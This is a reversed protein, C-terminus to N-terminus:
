GCSGTYGCTDCKECGDRKVLTMSHCEPCKKGNVLAKPVDKKETVSETVKQVTQPVRVAPIDAYQLPEYPRRSAQNVMLEDVSLMAGDEGLYGNRILLDQIIWAIAATDSSHFIPKSKGDATITKGCQVQGGAWTINRMDSLAKAFQAGGRAMLSLMRMSATVWQPAGDLQSQPIFFEVPRYISVPQGRHIGSVRAFSVILHLNHSVYNVLMETKIKIAPLDQYPLKNLELTRPDVDDLSSLIEVVVDQKPPTVEEKKEVPATLIGPRVPNPRYTSVGKLGGKWAKMYIDQFDEFPYDEPCNVTNHSVVGDILYDHSEEVEIDYVHAQCREISTIKRYIFPEQPSDEGTLYKRVSQERSVPQNRVEINCMYKYGQSYASFMGRNVGFPLKILENPQVHQTNKHDQLCGEFGYCMVGYVLYDYGNVRKTMGRPAYGLANLLSFCNGALEKSRGMYIVTASSGGSLFNARYGDLSVGALFARMEDPSGSMVAEPAHKDASRYGILNKIWRVVARSTFQWYHVGNRPDIRHKIEANFLTKCLDAFLAGVSQDNKTLSVLGAKEQLHGDACIMGLFMALEASMKEPITFDKAHSAFDIGPLEKGGPYDMSVDRRICVYDHYNLESMPTWGYPTMLKHVESGEIEQGNDLRIKITPRVGGYYHKTVKRWQGDPCIVKLDAIPEAFTDPDEAEGLEEVKLLGQNTMIRTGEAVCKSLASSVHPQTAFLIALHADVDIELATVFADPLIEKIKKGLYESKGESVAQIFGICYEESEQKSLVEKIYTKFAYDMVQYTQFQGDPGIKRRSYVWSFAPEIGNSANDAFALSVTGTPAISLLHSHRIGKERIADQLHKPLRQIFPGAMFKDVDFLPFSGREVALDISAEFAAENMQKAISGALLVAGASDYRIGLMIMADGIGTYGVGIRRKNAAEIRQEDLAWLTIDLVNDLIRVQTKVAQVFRDMDFTANETFPDKVFRPLILPGLDCCGYPPLPLEGCQGTVVGNFIVSNHDAQTTDYVAEYGIFEISEIETTYDFKQPDNVEEYRRRAYAENEPNNMGVRDLYLGVQSGRMELEYGSSTKEISSFIGFNALLMQISQLHEKETCKFVLVVGTNLFDFRFDGNISFVHQIYTKTDEQCLSFAEDPVGASLDGYQNMLETVLSENQLSNFQGMESQVLFSDSITLDKLKIKGRQTYFDHWNTGKVFYGDKSTVKYVAARSSTMFAPVAPRTTVGFEESDLTRNDVTVILDCKIDYLNKIQVMGYQTHLRTDGTVCPNTTKIEECYYVTNERNIKDLFLIGPEAYDYTSKTITDFLDRAKVVQYVWLGDERQYCEKQYKPHPQAKHKLEWIGDDQVAQMFADSCAVSVNFGSWRGPERKAQVFEYIDPHDIDLAGLQAGRRNGASEVTKGAIDFIDIFSCVGSTTSLTGKVLSKRPRINTFNYGVGGGKSMTKVAQAVAQIIGPHGDEDVPDFTDGVGQCFCNLLAAQVDTGCASMIRGAGVGYNQLHHYFIKEWKDRDQPKEAQALGKAVRAYVEDATTEGDKCYKEILVDQSIQATQDLLQQLTITQETSM